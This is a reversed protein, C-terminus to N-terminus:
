ALFKEILSHAKTKDILGNEEMMKISPLIRENAVNEVIVPDNNGKPPILVISRPKSMLSKNIWAIDELIWDCVPRKALLLIMVFNATMQVIINEKKFSNEGDSCPNPNSIQVSFGGEKRAKDEVFACILTEELYGTAFPRTYAIENSIAFTGGLIWKYKALSEFLEKARKGMEKGKNSLLVKELDELITLASRVAMHPENNRGPKAIKIHFANPNRLVGVALYELAKFKNHDKIDADTQFVWKAKRNKAKELLFRFLYGAMVTVGKGKPLRSLNLFPLLKKWNIIKLVEEKNILWVGNFKEVAEIAKKNSEDNIVFVSNFPIKKKAYNLLDKITSDKEKMPIVLDAQGKKLFQSISFANEKIERDNIQFYYQSFKERLTRKEKKLFDRKELSLLESSYDVWTCNQNKSKKLPPIKM